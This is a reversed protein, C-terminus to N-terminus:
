TIAPSAADRQSFCLQLASPPSHGDQRSYERCRAEQQGVPRPGPRLRFQEARRAQGKHAQQWPAGGKQQRRRRRRRWVVWRLGMGKEGTQGGRRGTESLYETLPWPLCLRSANLKGEEEAVKRFLEENERDKEAKSKEQKIGPIDDDDDFITKKKPRSESSMDAEDDAPGPEYSPPEFTSPQYSPPEYGGTSSVGPQTSPPESNDMSPPEYGHSPPQYGETINLGNTLPDPNPQAAPAYPSSQSADYPTYGPYASTRPQPPAPDRPSGQSVPAYPSSQSTASTQQYGTAPRSSSEPSYPNGHSPRRLENSRRSLEGSTRDMSTRPAPNYGANPDYPNSSTQAAVPAYRSGARTAPATGAAGALGSGYIDFNSVSPSPSITPTGGAIRAFPGVEAGSEGTSADRTADTDEGAVFKNFRTWMNSSVKDMSPKPIWSSSGERPALKLRKTLDDVSSELGINYYPSRKTQSMMANTIAECYLLAKDKFGHEALSIAHQLKYAALHPCGQITSLGGALSLGYEYVESLLLAETDKAFQDAQRRHDAGVLVFHAKSDDLGGFIAYTRAFIYCIHAAEARGYTSLLNGLSTLAQVDGQSRNSLIMGLTERWKDLGALADKSAATTTTTSMLQLGARAHVPVLEDVCEDFNTSLVSYLAALSENNLGSCNVEKKIFEQAVQKYLSAGQTTNAILMAHGWLRKDVAAWVAKERDGSLLHGRIQEITSSDIADAQMNATSSSLGTLDVGSSIATTVDPQDNSLGPSIIERVAKDVTPNGEVVGDNEVFVRLIKWLLVREVARKDEHSVYQQFTVNPLSRELGEIGATLWSVAEKKKGKGKLPGPFKSLREELPLIDKIHKIKVEGPSRMLMPVSQNMGYRPIDKTFSTVLVGGVGWQILPAGKWRELPDAERGDTPPVLTLHQSIGRARGVSQISQLPQVMPPSTPSHVSSPRPVPDAQKIGYDNERLAGPSQTQPRPPPAFSIERQIVSHPQPLYNSSSRKPSLMNSPPSSLPPSTHCAQRPSYRSKVPSNTTISKSAVPPSALSPPEEEVEQTTPLSPVRTVRPEYHSSSSRVMPPVDVHGSSSLKNPQKENSIEFHALPSSTRPQHALVPPPVANPTYGAGHSRSVPPAPSYRSTAAPPVAGNMMPAQPPAPSYRSTAPAAGPSPQSSPQLHAYPSSREPAVLSPIGPSLSQPVQQGLPSTMPPSVVPPSLLPQLGPSPLLQASPPRRPPGQQQSYPSIQPSSLNSHRAGPHPRSTIPLDEFFSPKSKLQPQDKPPPLQPSHSSGTPSLSATSGGSPPPQAYMSTSRPPGSPPASLTSTARPLQMMSARKKPKVVEMPLDYPSQYGGKSKGVFSQPKPLDPKPPPPAFTAPQVYSPHQTLQPQSVTQQLGFPTYPSLPQQHQPIDPTYRGNLGLNLSNTTPLTNAGPQVPLAASTETTDELFGEDDSGFIDTPDLEKSEATSELLFDDDDDGFAAAWKADMDNTEAKPKAEGNASDQRERQGGGQGQGNVAPHPRSAEEETPSSIDSDADTPAEESQIAKGLVMTTSKRRLVRDFNDEDATLQAEDKSHSFFDDGDDDEAFPDASSSQPAQPELVPQETVEHPILPLGEEFRADAAEQETDVLDGGVFHQFPENTPTDQEPEAQGQEESLAEDLEPEATLNNHFAAHEVEYLIDQAQTSPPSDILDESPNQIPPVVPFSNTRDAPPMFKFPDTDTRQLTWEADEDDNFSVEHSVTRAFSMKSTHKATNSTAAASETPPTETIPAEADPGLEHAEEQTAHAEAPNSPDWAAAEPDEHNFQDFSAGDENSLPPAITEQQTEHVSLDHDVQSPQDDLAQVTQNHSSSELGLPPQESTSNPMAAPNWSAAPNNSEM